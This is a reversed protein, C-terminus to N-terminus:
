KSIIAIMATGNQIALVLDQPFVAVIAGTEDATGELATWQVYDKKVIGIMAIVKEGEPYPTAFTMKGIVRGCDDVFGHAFCGTFEYINLEQSSLELMETIVAPKGDVTVADAFYAEISDANILDILAADASESPEAYLVPGENGPNEVDIEFMTMDGTTKSPVSEAVAFSCALMTFTILLAMIKKM